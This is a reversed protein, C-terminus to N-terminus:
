FPRAGMSTKIRYSKLQDSSPFKERLEKIQSITLKDRCFEKKFYNKAM